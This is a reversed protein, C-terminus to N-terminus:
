AACVQAVHAPPVPRATTWPMPKTRLEPFLDYVEAQAAGAWSGVARATLLMSESAVGHTTVIQHSDFLLHVYRVRDVPVRRVTTDNIMRCAPVLVEPEGYSLEVQWGSVLLRHQPSVTLARSAGFAGAAIRVPAFRGQGSVETQGIWRLPQLGDDRTLILDGPMLTEIRRAGTATEICTGATFCALGTDGPGLTGYTLQDPNPQNWQLTTTTQNPGVLVPVNQSTAGAALGNNAVINQTGGGIDYFDIVQNGVTDVLAFAEYNNSGGGDPDTLFINFNDASIIYIVEGNDPDISSTVGPDNLAIEEGVDGNSQYFSVTFNAPDDNPGLAVELFESVGSNRAYANSYHLESIRAM